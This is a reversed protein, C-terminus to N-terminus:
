RHKRDAWRFKKLPLDKSRRIMHGACRLRNTKAVNIACTSDFKRELAFNYRRRYVKNEQKPGCITRLVKREYVLLQKEERETLL